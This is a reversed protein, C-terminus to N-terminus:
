TDRLGEHFAHVPNTESLYRLAEKSHSIQPPKLMHLLCSLAAGGNLSAHNLWIWLYQTLRGM